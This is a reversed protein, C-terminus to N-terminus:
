HTSMAYIMPSRGTSEPWTAPREEAQLQARGHRRGADADAAAAETLVADRAYEPDYPLLLVTYILCDSARVAQRLQEFTAKSGKTPDALQNDAGDSFVVMAKRGEIGRFADLATLAADYFATSGRSQIQRAALKVEDRNNTFPQIMTAESDFTILAERDQPELQESFKTVADRILRIFGSTSASVDLLLLLHFPAESALCADVDRKQGDEYVSFDEKRLDAVSERKRPDWVSANIYIWDANIKLRYGTDISKTEAPRGKPDAQGLLSSTLCVLASAAFVYGRCM